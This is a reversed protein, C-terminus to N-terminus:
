QHANFVIQRKVAITGAWGDLFIDQHVGLLLGDLDVSSLLIGKPLEVTALLYYEGIM